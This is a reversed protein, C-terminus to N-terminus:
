RVCPPVAWEMGRGEGGGGVVPIGAPIYQMAATAAVVVVVVLLLM